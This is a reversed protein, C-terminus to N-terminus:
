VLDIYRAKGRSIHVSGNGSSLANGKWSVDAEGANIQFVAGSGKGWCERRCFRDDDMM